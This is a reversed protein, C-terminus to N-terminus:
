IDHKPISDPPTKRDLWRNDVEEASDVYKSPVDAGDGDVEKEDNM